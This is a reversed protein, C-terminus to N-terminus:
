KCKSGCVYQKLDDNSLEYIFVSIIKFCKLALRLKSKICKGLKLKLGYVGMDTNDRERKKRNM